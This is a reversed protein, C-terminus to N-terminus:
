VDCVLSLSDCFSICLYYVCHLFFLLWILQFLLFWIVRYPLHICCVKKNLWVTRCRLNEHPTPFPLAQAIKMCNKLMCWLGFKFSDLKQKMARFNLADFEQLLKFDLNFKRLLTFRQRGTQNVTSIPAQHYNSHNTPYIKVVHIM